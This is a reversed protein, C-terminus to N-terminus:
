CHGQSHGGYIQMDVVDKVIGEKTALTERMTLPITERSKTKHKKTDNSLDSM